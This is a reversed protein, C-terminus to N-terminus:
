NCNYVGVLALVSEEVSKLILSMLVAKFYLLALLELLMESGGLLWWPVLDSDEALLVHHQGLLEDLHFM